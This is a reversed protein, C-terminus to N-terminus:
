AISPFLAFLNDTVENVIGQLWASGQNTEDGKLQKITKVYNSDVEDMYKEITTLFPHNKHKELSKIQNGIVKGVHNRNKYLEGKQGLLKESAHDGMKIKYMKQSEFLKECYYVFRKIRENIASELTITLGEYIELPFRKSIFKKRVHIGWGMLAVLNAM